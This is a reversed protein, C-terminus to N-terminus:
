RKTEAYVQANSERTFVVHAFQHTPSFLCRHLLLRQDEEASATNLWEIVTYLKINYLIFVGGM